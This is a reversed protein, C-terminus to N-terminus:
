GGDRDARAWNHARPPAPEDPEEALQEMFAMLVEAKEPEVDDLAHRLWHAMEEPDGVFRGADQGGVTLV